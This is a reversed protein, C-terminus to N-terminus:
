RDLTPQWGYTVTAGSAFRLTSMKAYGEMFGAIDGKNWATSQDQLVQEIQKADAAPDARAPTQGAVGLSLLVCLIVSRLCM